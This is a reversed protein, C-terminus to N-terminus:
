NNQVLKYKKVKARGETADVLTLKHAIKRSQEIFYLKNAQANIRLSATSDFAFSMISHTGPSLEFALFTGPGTVGVIRGDASVQLAVASGTIAASRFVYIKAKGPSLSFYKAAENEAETALPVSACGAGLALMYIGTILAFILKMRWM